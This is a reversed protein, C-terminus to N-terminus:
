GGCYMEVRGGQIRQVGLIRSRFYRTTEWLLPVWYSGRKLPVGVITGMIQSLGM